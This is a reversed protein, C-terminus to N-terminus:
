SPVESADHRQVTRHSWVLLWVAAAVGTYLMSEFGQSLISQEAVHVLAGHYVVFLAMVLSLTFVAGGFPTRHLIEFTLVSLILAATGTVITFLISLTFLPGGVM